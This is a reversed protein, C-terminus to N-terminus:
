FASARLYGKQGHPFESEMTKGQLDQPVPVARRWTGNSALWNQFCFWECNPYTNFHQPPPYRLSSLTCSSLRGRVVWCTFCATGPPVESVGCPTTSFSPHPPSSPSPPNSLLGRGECGAGSIFPALQVTPSCLAPM